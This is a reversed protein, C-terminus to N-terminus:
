WVTPKVSVTWSNAVSRPFHRDNLTFSYGARFLSSYGTTCLSLRHWRVAMLFEDWPSHLSHLKLQAAIPFSPTGINFIVYILLPYFRSGVLRIILKLMLFLSSSEVSISPILLWVWSIMAIGFIFMSVAASILVFIIREFFDVMMVRYQKSCFM